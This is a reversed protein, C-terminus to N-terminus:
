KNSKYAKLIEKWSPRNEWIGLVDIFDSWEIHTKIQPINLTYRNFNTWEVYDFAPAMDALWQNVIIALRPASVSKFTNTLNDHDAYEVFLIYWGFKPDKDYVMDTYTQIEKGNAKM